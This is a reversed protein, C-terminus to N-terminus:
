TEVFGVGSDDESKVWGDVDDVDLVLVTFTDNANRCAATSIAFVTM